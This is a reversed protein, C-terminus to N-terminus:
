VKEKRERQLRKLQSRLRSFKQYELTSIVQGSRFKSNLEDLM